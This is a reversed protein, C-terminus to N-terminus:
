AARTSGRAAAFLLGCLGLNAIALAALMVMTLTAGAQVLLLAGLSPAVAQAILAPRAIRGMLPAYRGPGFLALPLTGRAISVIGNGASYLILAVAVLPQGLVLLSLGVALLVLASVLSWLPHHRGGRAIELLRGGVQAPGIVTGLAVAGALSMGQSQLLAILHVSVIAAVTSTIVVIAAFLLFARREAGALRPVSASAAQEDHGAATSARPARPITALLLPVCVLLQIAAYAFCTDRWGMHEVMWASLPWCVTSAFGGLLTLSTIASRASAGYLRGLTAFAPDYLGAGMAIGMVVWGALFVPLGPALGLIALGLAFLLSAGLLVPRGGHRGIIEGVRPSVAGAVLFGLSLAGVIWPLPWGTDARIPAALVTLLYYSSGWSIIQVIGLGGITRWRRPPPSPPISAEPVDM